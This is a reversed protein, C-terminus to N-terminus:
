RAWSPPLDFEVQTTAAARPFVAGLPFRVAALSDAEGSHAQRFQERAERTQLRLPLVWAFLPAVDCDLTTHGRADTPPLTHRLTGDGDRLEIELDTAPSGGPRRITVDVHGSVVDFTQETTEGVVVHARESASVWQTMSESPRATIWRLEYDGNPLAVQLRGEGDTTARVQRYTTGEQHDVPRQRLVVEATRLPAGNHLVLARLTGPLVASLDLDHVTTLGEFLEVTGGDIEVYTGEAQYRCSIQIRWTGPPIGSRRCSGDPALNWAEAWSPYSRHRETGTDILRLKPLNEAFRPGAMRQLEEWAAMPVVQGRLTAGDPVTVVLPAGDVWSAEPVLHPANPPGPLRLGIPRDVPARVTANGQQDTTASALIWASAQPRRSSMVSMPLFQMQPHLPEGFADITQVEAGPLPSGDARQVHVRHEGCATLYVTHEADTGGVEVWAIAPALAPDGPEVVLNCEGRPLGTVQMRGDPHHPDDVGGVHVTSGRQPRPTAVLRYEEVATGDSLRVVRVNLTKGAVAVYRLDHRGWTIPTHPCEIAYGVGVSLLTIRDPWGPRRLVVFHGKADTTTGAGRGSINPLMRVGPVPEGQEDVVTGEITEDDALQRLMVDLHQEAAGTVQVQSVQVAHDGVSVVYDGAPLGAVMRFTGDALTTAEDHAEFGTRSMASEANEIRVRAEGVPAGNADLVRGRLHTGAMIVLDGLDATVGPALIKGELTWTAAGQGDIRLWPTGSTAPLVFAFTGDDATTTRVNRPAATTGIDFLQVALRARPQGATDVCRGRLGSEVAAVAREPALSRELDAAFEDVPPAPRLRQMDDVAAVAVEDGPTVWASPASNGPRWVLGTVVLATLSAALAAKWTMTMLFGGGAVATTTLLRHDLAFAGVLAAQWDRGSARGRAALDTRLLALGRRLRTKITEVPEGRAVAIAAPTQEQLFRAFVVQRYPEPLALVADTLARLSESNELHRDAPVAIDHAVAQDRRAQRARTRRHRSAVRRAITFLWGALPGPRRPPSRLAQLATEQVVDEADSSGVLQRALDRLASGHQRLACELDQMDRDDVGTGARM